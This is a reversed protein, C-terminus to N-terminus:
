QLESASEIGSVSEIRRAVHVYRQVGKRSVRIERDLLLEYVGDRSAGEPTPADVDPDIPSVWAPAPGVRFISGAQAAATAPALALFLASTTAALSSSRLRM